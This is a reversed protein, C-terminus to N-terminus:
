AMKLQKRRWRPILFFHNSSCKCAAIPWWCCIRWGEYAHKQPSVPLNSDFTKWEFGGHTGPVPWSCMQTLLKKSLDLLPVPYLICRLSLNSDFAKWEFGALTCSVPSLALVSKLWFNKVRIWCPYLTYMYILLKEPIRNKYLGHSRQPETWDIDMTDNM